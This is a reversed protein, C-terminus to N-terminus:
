LAMFVFLLIISTVLLLHGGGGFLFYFSAFLNSSVLNAGRSDAIMM